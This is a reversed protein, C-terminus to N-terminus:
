RAETCDIYVSVEETGDPRTRAWLAVMAEGGIGVPRVAHWGESLARKLGYSSAMFRTMQTGWDRNHKKRSEKDVEKGITPDFKGCYADRGFVDNASMRDYWTATPNFEHLMDKWLPPDPTGREPEVSSRTSNAGHQKQVGNKPNSSHPQHSRTKTVANTSKGM